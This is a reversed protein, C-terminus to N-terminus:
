ALRHIVKIREGERAFLAKCHDIDEASVGIRDILVARVRSYRDLRYLLCQGVATSIANSRGFDRLFKVEYAALRQGFFSVAMDPFFRHGLLYTPVVRGSGEGAITIGDIGLKEQVLRLIPMLVRLTYAPEAENVLPKALPQSKLATDFLGVLRSEEEDKLEHAM